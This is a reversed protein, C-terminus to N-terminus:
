QPLPSMGSATFADFGLSASKKHIDEAISKLSAFDKIDSLKYGAKDLLDTNVIIGFCEYCYGISCLKGNADYLNYADTNLENAISTGKLDYCYEGWSNVAAANGVVFLTPADKGKDMEATLTSEYTGSAATVIKVEVGTQKTYTAALAELAEKAEPKFNLWYVSPKDASCGAFMSLVLVLAFIVALIKKM